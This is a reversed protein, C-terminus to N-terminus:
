ERFNKKWIKIPHIGMRIIFYLWAGLFGFLHTFHAINSNGFLQSGIEIITYILVLIPAPVPILGWIIIVSKPFFVAYAFLISYVAGSAGILFARYQGTYKYVLFSFFGSLGGCVLYFLLFEKSGIARELKLGFFLLGLMNFFLHSINGHLFMYSIFQWYYNGQIIAKANLAGFSYFLQFLSPSTYCIGFILFNILIIGLTVKSYSYTFPKRFFLIKNLNM